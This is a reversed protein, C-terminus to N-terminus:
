VGLGVDIAAQYALAISVVHIPGHFHV